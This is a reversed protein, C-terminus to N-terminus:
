ESAPIGQVAPNGPLGNACALHFWGSPNHCGIVAHGNAAIEYRWKSVQRRWAVHNTDRFDQLKSCKSEAGRTQEANRNAHFAEVVTLKRLADESLSLQQAL